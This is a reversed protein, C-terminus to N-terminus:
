IPVASNAATDRPFLKINIAIDIPIPKEVAIVGNIASASEESLRFCALDVYLFPKNKADYIKNLHEILNM